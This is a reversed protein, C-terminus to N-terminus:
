GLWARIMDGKKDMLKDSKDLWKNALKKQKKTFEVFIEQYGTKNNSYCFGSVEKGDVVRIDFDYWDGM